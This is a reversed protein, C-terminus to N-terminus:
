CAFYDALIRAYVAKLAHIHATEVHEDVQHMTAGVLGFEVVPCHAQIYRADSTGGTTSLEPTVGTEAAVARAVLDTFPGPGTLFSEGSIQFRASVGVGFAKAARDAEEEIWDSLSAGSHADNFRINVTARAEAPIVNSAPNGTDITTIALTSPGFHETGADLTRSALRDLLRVLAPLPNAAREPYASHGQRGYATLWATLSGRRGIKITDGMRAPCTPEGVLCHDLREGNAAMWDLIAPTGDVSEGEEDGTVALVVSGRPPTAATFDIAAAAFAAVGSKMDAAGRGYLRGDEIAAAFPLHRWAAPDGPPVVDTHGNFGFVPGETGWRAYLNAIGNRDARHVAFGHAALLGQLLTIAGGEEPTVSPCRVLAATLDVPDTM